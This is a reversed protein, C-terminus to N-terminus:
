HKLFIYIITHCFIFLTHVETQSTGISTDTLVTIREKAVDLRSIFGDFANKRETITNKMELM